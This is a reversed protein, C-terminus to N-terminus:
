GGTLRQDKEDTLYASFLAFMIRNMWFADNEDPQLALQVWVPWHSHLEARMRGQTLPDKMQMHVQWMNGARGGLRLRTLLVALEWCRDPHVSSDPETPQLRLVDALRVRGGHLELGEANVPGWQLNLEQLRMLRLTVQSALEAANRPSQPPLDSLRNTIFTCVGLATVGQTILAVPHVVDERALGNSHVLWLATAMEEDLEERWAVLQQLAHAPGEILDFRWGGGQALPAMRAYLTGEPGCLWRGSHGEPWLGELFSWADQM